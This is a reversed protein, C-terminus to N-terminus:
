LWSLTKEKDEKGTTLDIFVEELSHYTEKTAKNRIKNRIDKTASQFVIEGKNIIIVENSTM